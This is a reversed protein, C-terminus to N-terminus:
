PKFPETVTHIGVKTTTFECYMQQGAVPPGILRSFERRLTFPGAFNTWNTGDTSFQYNQKSEMVAPMSRTAPALFDEQRVASTPMWHTDTVSNFELVNPSIVTTAAPAFSVGGPPLITPNSPSIRHAFDNRSYTVEERWTLAPAQAQLDAVAGSSSSCRFKLQFGYKNPGPTWGTVVQQLNTPVAAPVAPTATAATAPFGGPPAGGDSENEDIHEPDSPDDEEVTLADLARCTAQNGSFRQLDLVSTRGALQPQRATNGLLPRDLAVADPSQVTTAWQAETAASREDDDLEHDRQIRDSRLRRPM